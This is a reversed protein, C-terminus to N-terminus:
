QCQWINFNWSFKLGEITRLCQNGTEVRFFIYRKFIENRAMLYEFASRKASRIRLRICIEPTKSFEIPFFKNNIKNTASFRILFSLTKIQTGAVIWRPCLSGVFLALFNAGNQLNVEFRSHLFSHALSAPFFSLRYFVIPIGAAGLPM